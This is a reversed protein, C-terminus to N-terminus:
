RCGCAFRSGGYKYVSDFKLVLVPSNLSHRVDYIFLSCWDGSHVISQVYMYIKILPYINNHANDSLKIEQSAYSRPKVICSKGARRGEEEEDDFLTTTVCLSKATEHKKIETSTRYVTRRTNVFQLMIM